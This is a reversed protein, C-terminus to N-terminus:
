RRILAPIDRDGAIVRVILVDATLEVSYLIIYRGLPFSRLGPLLDADRRRGIHPHRALVLFRQSLTEIFRDAVEPNGSESAIFYWINDLDAEAELALRHAM